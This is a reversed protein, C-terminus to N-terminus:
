RRVWDCDLDTIEESTAASVFSDVSTCEISYEVDRIPPAKDNKRCSLSGILHAQDGKLKRVKCGSVQEMAVVARPEIIGLRPAYQRNTRIAEAKKDHVRVDFTSGDVTVQVPQIGRFEASPTNCAAALCFLLLYRYM